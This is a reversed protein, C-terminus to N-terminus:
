IELGLIASSQADKNVSIAPFLEMECPNQSSM